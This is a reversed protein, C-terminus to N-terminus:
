VENLVGLYTQIKHESVETKTKTLVLFGIAFVANRGEGHTRRQVAEHM